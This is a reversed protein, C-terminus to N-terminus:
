AAAPLRPARRTNPGMTTIPVPCISLSFSTGTGDGRTMPGRRAALLHRPGRRGPQASCLSVSPSLLLDAVRPKDSTSPSGTLRSSDDSSAAERKSRRQGWRGRWGRRGPSRRKGGKECAGPPLWAALCPVPLRSM